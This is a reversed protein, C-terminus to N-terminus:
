TNGSKITIVTLIVVPVAMASWTEMTYPIGLLFLTNLSWILAAPITSWAALVAAVFSIMVMIHPTNEPEDPPKGKVDRDKEGLMPGIESVLDDDDPGRESMQPSSYHM